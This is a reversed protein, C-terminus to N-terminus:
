RGVFAGSQPRLREMSAQTPLWCPRGVGTGRLADLLHRRALGAVPVREVTAILADVVAPDFQTGKSRLLTPPTSVVLAIERRKVAVSPM